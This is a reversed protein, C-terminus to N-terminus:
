DSMDLNWALKFRGRAILTNKTLHSISRRMRKKQQSRGSECTKPAGHLFHCSLALIADPGSLIWESFFQLTTQTQVPFDKTQKLVDRLAEGATGM